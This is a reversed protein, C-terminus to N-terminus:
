NKAAQEPQQGLGSLRQAVAALGLTADTHNAAVVRWEDVSLLPQGTSEDIVVLQLLYLLAKAGEGGAVARAPVADVAAAQDVAPAAALSRLYADFAFREELWLGRVLVYGGLPAFAVTEQPLGAPVSGADVVDKRTLTAM